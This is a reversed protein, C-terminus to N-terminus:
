EGKKMENIVDILENLKDAIMKSHKTLACKTGYENRIYYNSNSTDQEIKLKELIKKEEIAKNYGKNIYKQISGLAYGLNEFDTPTMKKEDDLIDVTDQLFYQLNDAHNELFSMALKNKDDKRIYDNFDEDWYYDYGCFCIKKPMSINGNYNYIKSLLGYVTIQKM